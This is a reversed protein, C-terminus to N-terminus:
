FYKSTDIGFSMQYQITLKDLNIVKLKIEEENM